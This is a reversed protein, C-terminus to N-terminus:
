RHRPWRFHPNKGRALSDYGSGMIIRELAREKDLRIQDWEGSPSYEIHLFLDRLHGKLCDMYSILRRFYEDDCDVLYQTLPTTVPSSYPPIMMEMTLSGAPVALSILYLSIVWDESERNGPQFATWTRTSPMRWRIHRLYQFSRPAFCRLFASKQASWAAAPPSTKTECEVHFINRSYYVDMALRRMSNSVLFLMHPTRLCPLVGPEMCFEERRDPCFTRSRGYQSYQPRFCHQDPSYIHALDFVLDTHELIRYQLEIPLHFFPFPKPCDRPKTKERIMAASMQHTDPNFFPGMKIALKKLRPLLKLPSLFAAATEATFADCMFRLDLRDNHTNHAALQECIYIWDPLVEEVDRCRSLFEDDYHYSRNEYGEWHCSKDLAFSVCRFSRWVLPGFGRIAQLGWGIHRFFGFVNESYFFSRADESVGRSVYFLQNAFSHRYHWSPDNIIKQERCSWEGHPPVRSLDVVGDQVIIGLEVYIRYRVNHPLRLLFAHDSM